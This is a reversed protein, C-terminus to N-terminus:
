ISLLKLGFFVTRPQAPGYIFNSDRNKGIDFSNQYANLINKIGGYFEIASKMKKLSVKYGLKISVESFTPTTVMEDMTQNPAGAFHPIIMTGTYLYNLNVSINDTPLISFTAFGYSTPTRIFETIGEVETIYEVNEDFVSEQITFGGEIQLKQNFNARVETTVGQVTAGQGNQKEFVEGFNDAGIPQLFFAENLRTYFGEVTFGVIKTKFPKDYNMSASYSRSKEPSLNPSLQVRSVGGGAFAIHLDTDFAQPARFGTGYSFRFQTKPKYKYLLSARPSFVVGEILNHKDMRVGSLLTLKPSISWDSQIFVGIDETTQDITYNYTEIQDFVDDYMYEGGLTIVNTGKIFKNLKHNLQFGSNLTTTNSRGYPPLSNHIAIETSDDPLIGTYHKRKTNQWAAYLILTTNDNYNVQYDASGMWVNHSREESQQTLYAPIEKMEGGFRYENLNSLSIELKQNKSPLFFLNTGFSNNKLAPLESFNDSNHDYWERERNNFFFSAGSKKNESLLSINGSSILDNSGGNIRQAFTNLEYSNKKPLKTIVNVTGGIASSGYLSSGGGRIIEIRDIMNTPLQELGYLGTLPSFIPRGNILIQSYGGALGNMRLQTYNCTQCDTEVRLGPQFKLGDSLNCAQVNDLTKSNLVNVIVPSDTKRKPTKTGTIVVEDLNSLSKILSFNIEINKTSANITVKKTADTYGVYSAVVIYTGYPLAEITYEGDANTETGSVPKTSVTVTAAEAPNESLMITGRISGVQGYSPVVSLLLIACFFYSHFRKLM